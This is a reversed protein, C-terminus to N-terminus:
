LLAGDPPHPQAKKENENAIVSRRGMMDYAGVFM